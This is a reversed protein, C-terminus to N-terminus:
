FDGWLIQLAAIAALAATETRFIRKGLHVPTFQTHSMAKEEEATFGGEPGVCIVVGTEATMPSLDRLKKDTHTSLMLRMECDSTMIKKRSLWEHLTILPEIHPLRNRGCQECAAIIIKQWHLLRKTAREDSLHVISRQTIVPQIHSVGLEVAKQIIWDMKENVCVAQALEIKLPSERDHTFYEVVQVTIASKDSTEIRSVYEGGQGNFLTIADGAKLRLVRLAHHSNDNSLAIHQGIDINEPHYFRAHM